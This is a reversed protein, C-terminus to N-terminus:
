SLSAERKRAKTWKAQMRIRSAYDQDIHMQFCVRIHVGYIIDDYEMTPHVQIYECREGGEIFSNIAKLDNHTVSDFARTESLGEMCMYYAVARSMFTKGTGPCGRILINSM